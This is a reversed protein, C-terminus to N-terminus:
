KVADMFVPIEGCARTASNTNLGYSKRCEVVVEYTKVFMLRDQQTNYAKVLDLSLFFGVFILLPIIFAFTIAKIDSM